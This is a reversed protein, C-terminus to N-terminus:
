SSSYGYLATLCAQELGVPAKLIEPNVSMLFQLSKAEAMAPLVMETATSAVLQDLYEDPTKLLQLVENFWPTRKTPTESWYQFTLFEQPVEHPSDPYILTALPFVQPIQLTAEYGFLHNVEYNYDNM